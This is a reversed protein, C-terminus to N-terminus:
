KYFKKFLIKLYEQSKRQRLRNMFTKSNDKVMKKCKRVIKRIDTKPFLQIRGSGKKLILNVM